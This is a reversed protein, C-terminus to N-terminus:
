EWSVRSIRFLMAYCLLLVRTDLFTINEVLCSWDIPSPRRVSISVVFGVGHVRSLRIEDGQSALHSRSNSGPRLWELSHPLFCAVCFGVFVVQNMFGFKLAPFPMLNFVAVPFSFFASFDQVHPVGAVQAMFKSWVCIYSCDHSTPSPSRSRTALAMCFRVRDLWFIYKPFTPFIRNLFTLGM